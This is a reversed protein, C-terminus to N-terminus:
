YRELRLDIEQGRYVLFSDKFFTYFQGREQNLYLRNDFLSDVRFILVGHKKLSLLLSDNNFQYSGAFGNQGNEDAIIYTNDKNFTLTFKEHLSGVPVKNIPVEGCGSSFFKIRLKEAKWKGILLDYESNREEAPRSCCICFIFIAFFHLVKNM